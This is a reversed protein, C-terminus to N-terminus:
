IWKMKGECLKRSFPSCQRWVCFIYFFNIQHEMKGSFMDIWICKSFNVFITKIDTTLKNFKGFIYIKSSFERKKQQQQTIFFNYKTSDIKLLTFTFFEIVNQWRMTNTWKSPPNDIHSMATIHIGKIVHFNMKILM